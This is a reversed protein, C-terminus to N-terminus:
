TAQRSMAKPAKSVALHKPKPKCVHRDLSPFHPPFGSYVGSSGASHVPCDMSSLAATMLITERDDISFWTKHSMHMLEVGALVYRREIMSRCCIAWCHITSYDISVGREEMLEEIHRYSLTYAACWYICVLIVDIPFRMGKFDLM